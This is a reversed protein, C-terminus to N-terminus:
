FVVPLLEVRVKPDRAALWGGHAKVRYGHLAHRKATAGLPGRNAHKVSFPSDPNGPRFMQHNGDVVDPMAWLVELTIYCLAQSWWLRGLGASLLSSL